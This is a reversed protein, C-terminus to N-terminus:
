PCFHFCLLGAFIWGLAKFEGRLMLYPLFVVPLIKINIGLAILWAGANKARRLTHLGEICLYMILITV